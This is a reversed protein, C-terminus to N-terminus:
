SEKSHKERIEISRSAHQNNEYIDVILGSIYMQSMRGPVPSNFLEDYSSQLSLM